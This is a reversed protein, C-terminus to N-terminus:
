GEATGRLQRAAMARLKCSKVPSITLTSKVKYQDQTFRVPNENLLIIM